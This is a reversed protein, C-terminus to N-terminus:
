LFKLLAEYKEIKDNIIEAEPSSKKVDLVNSKLLSINDMVNTKNEKSINTAFETLINLEKGNIKAVGGYVFYNTKNDEFFVSVIGIDISSIFKTHGPLVGFMGENGPVNVMEAESDLVVKSPLIIKVVFTSNYM